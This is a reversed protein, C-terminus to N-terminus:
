GRPVASRRPLWGPGRPGVWTQKDPPLHGVDSFIELRTSGDARVSIVTLSANGIEMALWHDPNVGLARCVFWRIVNGHCVLLDRADAAPSPQAYRAWAAALQADCLAIEEPTSQGMIDARVTTPTCEHLLSDRAATMGLISGIDDATERARTFDSSVLSTIRVPLAALRRGLLRAQEHGLATLANGVREDVSDQRDYMGHRVLYLYHIGEPAPPGAARVPAAAILGILLLLAM